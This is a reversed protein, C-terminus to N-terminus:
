HSPNPLPFIAPRDNIETMTEVVERTFNGPPCTVGILVCPRVSRLAEPFGWAMRESIALGAIRKSDTVVVLRVDPESQSDINQRTVM